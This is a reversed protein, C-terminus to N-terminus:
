GRAATQAVRLEILAQVDQAKFRVLRGIRVPPLIGADGYKRITSEGLSLREAVDKAKLLQEPM